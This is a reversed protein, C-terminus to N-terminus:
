SAHERVTRALATFFPATYGPDGIRDPLHSPAPNFLGAGSGAPEGLERANLWAPWEYESWAAGATTKIVEGLYGNLAGTLLGGLLDAGVAVTSGSRGCEKRAQAQGVAPDFRGKEIATAVGGLQYAATCYARALESFYGVLGGCVVALPAFPLTGLTCLFGAFNRADGALRSGGQLDLGQGHRGRGGSVRARHGAGSGRDM